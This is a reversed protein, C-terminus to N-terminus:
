AIPTSQNFSCACVQRTPMHYTHYTWTHLTKSHACARTHTHMQSHSHIYVLTHQVGQSCVQHMVSWMLNKCLSATASVPSAHSCSTSTLTNWDYIWRRCTSHLPWVPPWRAGTRQPPSCTCSLVTVPAIVVLQSVQRHDLVRLLGTGSYHWPDWLVHYCSPFPSPCARVYTWCCIIFYCM